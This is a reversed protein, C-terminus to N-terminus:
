VLEKIYVKIDRNFHRKFCDEIHAKERQMRLFAKKDDKDIVSEDLLKYSIALYDSYANLKFKDVIENGNEDLKVDNDVGKKVFTKLFHQFKNKYKTIVMTYLVKHYIPVVQGTKTCTAKYSSPIQQPGDAFEYNFIKQKRAM